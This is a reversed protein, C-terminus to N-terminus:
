LGFYYEAEKLVIKIRSDGALDAPTCNRSNKFKFFSATKIGLNGAIYIFWKIIDAHNLKAAWHLPTNGEFDSIAFFHGFPIDPFAQLIIYAIEINNNAFALHMINQGNSNVITYPWKLNKYSDRFCYAIFNPDFEYLNILLNFIHESSLKEQAFLNSFKEKVERDFKIYIHKCYTCNPNPPKSYLKQACICYHYNM